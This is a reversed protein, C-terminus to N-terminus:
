FSPRAPVIIIADRTVRTVGGKALFYEGRLLASFRQHAVSYLSQVM